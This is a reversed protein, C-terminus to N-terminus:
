QYVSYGYEEINVYSLDAYEQWKLEDRCINSDTKQTNAIKEEISPFIWRRREGVVGKLTLRNLLSRRNAKFKGDNMVLFSFIM